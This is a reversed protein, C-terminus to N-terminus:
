NEKKYGIHEKRNNNISYKKLFRVQNITTKQM